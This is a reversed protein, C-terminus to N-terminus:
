AFNRLKAIDDAAVRHGLRQPSRRQRIRDEPPLLATPGENGQVRRRFALWPDRGQHMRFIEQDDSKIEQWPLFSGTLIRLSNAPSVNLQHRRTAKSADISGPLPSIGLNGWGAPFKPESIPESLLAVEQPPSDREGIGEIAPPAFAPSWASRPDSASVRIRTYSQLM